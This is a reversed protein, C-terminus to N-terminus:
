DGYAVLLLIFLLTWVIFYALSHGLAKARRYLYVPVLWSSGMKQTDHGARKLKREDMLWLGVNLLLTVWWYHDIDGRSAGAVFGAFFHGILPAFALTWVLGNPVAKAALPPPEHQFREGFVTSGLPQWDAAGSQWALSNRDLQKAAIMQLIQSAALPGKREGNIDVYWTSPPQPTGMATADSRTQDM